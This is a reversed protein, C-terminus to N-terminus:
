ATTQSCDDSQYVEVSRRAGRIASKLQPKRVTTARICGLREGQRFDMNRQPKRVTTARICGLGGGFEDLMAHQPKRVTTARICRRRCLPCRRGHQPKRVTTARICWPHRTLSNPVGSHNAFLRRESVGILAVNAKAFRRQPKRVTTARICGRLTLSASSSPQPKRVTTARICWLRGRSGYRAVSHNAFLRRESVGFRSQCIYSHNAFLRRESVGVDIM